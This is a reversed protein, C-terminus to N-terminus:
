HQAHRGLQRYARREHQDLLGLRPSRWLQGRGRPWLTRSGAQPGNVATVQFRERLEADRSVFHIEGVQDILARATLDVDTGVPNGLGDLGDWSVTGVGGVIAVPLEIDAPGGYVGDGDADIQVVMQGTFDAVEVTFTGSRDTTSSPTFDLTTISPLVLPPNVWRTSGDPWTASAPLDAAPAEFFIKYPDGCNGPTDYVGRGDYPGTMEYSLYASTCTGKLTNGAADSVLTSNIGNFGEYVAEYLFGERSLYYLTMDVAAATSGPQSLGFRESWVRGPVDAGSGDQVAIEWEFYDTGAAATDFEITWVGSTSSTLGTLDCVEGVPTTIAVLCTHVEGGPGRVTITVDGPADAVPAKAFKTFLVDLSEGAGVYANLTNEYRLYTGAPAAEASARDPITVSAVMTLSLSLLVALAM